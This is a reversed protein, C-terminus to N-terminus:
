PLWQIVAPQQPIAVPHLHVVQLLLIAALPCLLRRRAVIRLQLWTKFTWLGRRL